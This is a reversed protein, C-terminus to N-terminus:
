ATRMRLPLPSWTYGALSMPSLSSSGTQHQINALGNCADCFLRDSDCPPSNSYSVLNLTGNCIPCLSSSCFCDPKVSKYFVQEGDITYNGIINQGERIMFYIIERALDFNVTPHKEPDVAMVSYTNKLDKCKLSSVVKLNILGSRMKLWTGYDTLTYANLENTETLTPGMGQGLSKYWTKTQVTGNLGWAKWITEEKTNTGSKDGRSTFIVPKGSGAADYIIKFILTANDPKTMGAVNAPDSTPGVIVFYNYAFNVRFIGQGSYPYKTSTHNIFEGEYTASHAIVVDGDGRGAAAIAQGTGAAIWRLDVGYKADFATKILDLIGSDQMSTTTQLLLIPRPALVTVGAVVLSVAVLAILSTAIILRTREEL